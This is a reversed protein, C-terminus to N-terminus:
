GQSLLLLKDIKTRNRRKQGNQVSLTLSLENIGMNPVNPSRPNEVELVKLGDRQSGRPGPHDFKVKKSESYGYATPIFKQLNELCKQRFPSVRIGLLPTWIKFFHKSNSISGGSSASPDM